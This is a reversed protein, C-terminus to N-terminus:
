PTSRDNQQIRARDQWEAVALDDAYENCADCWLVDSGLLHNGDPCRRDSLQAPEIHVDIQNTDVHHHHTM